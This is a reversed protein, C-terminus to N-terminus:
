KLADVFDKFFVLTDPTNDTAQAVSGKKREAGFLREPHYQVAWIPLSEHEIAEIIGEDSWATARMCEGMDKAAQHHFSNVEFEEGFLRYLISGKECKINHLTGRHNVGKQSPLDQWLTGGFYAHIVQMGRCIGMVPKKAKVFMDLIPFELEDREADFTCTEHCESDGFLHPQIDVGGTLLLGSCLEFLKKMEQQEPMHTLVIPVAGAAILANVYGRFIQHFELNTDSIQHAPTLLVFPKM